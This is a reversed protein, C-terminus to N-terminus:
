INETKKPTTKLSIIYTKKLDKNNNKQPTLYSCNKTHFPPRSRKNTTNLIAQSLLFCTKENFTRVNIMGSKVFPGSFILM